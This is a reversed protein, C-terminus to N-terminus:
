DSWRLGGRSVKSSRLHVGEFETSYVFIEYKPRPLPTELIDQSSLKISIYSKNQNAANKQYYNTRLTSKILNFYCRFIKDEDLNSVNELSKEFNIELLNLDKKSNKALDPDFRLKFYAILLKTLEPYNNFTREIYNQSFTFSIQRLYKAYVRLLAVERWTLLASLILRNFGDNQAQENWITSFADKFVDKILVTNLEKNKEHVMDFDSIFIVKEAGLKIEYPREDLVRLGMNELIPVVDSLPIMREKQFLKIHLNNETSSISRYVGLVLENKELTLEIHKIDAVAIRPDFAEKYSASFAYKYTEFLNAGQEEGYHEVLVEHLADNWIRTIAIIEKEIDAINYASHEIKPDIRIVYHIRAVM